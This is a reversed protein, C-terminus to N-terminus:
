RPTVLDIGPCLKARDIQWQRWGSAGGIGLQKWVKKENYRSRKENVKLAQRIRGGIQGGLLDTTKARTRKKKRQESGETAM